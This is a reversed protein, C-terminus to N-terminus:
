LNLNLSLRRHVLSDNLDHWIVRNARQALPVPLPIRGAFDSSLRSLPLLPKLSNNEKSLNSKIEIVRVTIEIKVGM